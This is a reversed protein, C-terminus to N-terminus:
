FEDLKEYFWNKNPVFSQENDLEKKLVVKSFSNDKFNNENLKKLEQM